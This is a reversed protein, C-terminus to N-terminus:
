SRHRRLAIEGLRERELPVKHISYEKGVSDIVTLKISGQRIKDPNIATAMFRVWGETPQEPTLTIPLSSFLRKLTAPEEALTKPNSRLGYEWEQNNFDKALFDDKRKFLVEKEDIEAYLQLERIYRTKETDRNVLYMEVLIDTDIVAEDARGQHQYIGKVLEWAASRPSMALRYVEGDIPPETTPKTDLVTAMSAPLMETESSPGLGRAALLQDIKRFLEKDERSQLFMQAISGSFAIAALAYITWRWHSLDEVPVLAVIAGIAGGSVAGVGAFLNKVTLHLDFRIRM